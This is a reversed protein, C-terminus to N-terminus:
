LEGLCQKCYDMGGRNVAGCNPCRPGSGTPSAAPYTPSSGRGPRPGAPRSRRGAHLEARAM